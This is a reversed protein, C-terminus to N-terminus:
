RPQTAPSTAASIAPTSAVPKLERELFAIVRQPVVPDNFAGHGGGKVVYMEVKGGIKQIADRFQESQSLPVVRDRDGHVILVPPMAAHVRHVPSASKALAPDASPTKGLLRAVATDGNGPWNGTFDAPGFFDIVAQVKTTDDSHIDGALLSVLHGGASGGWAAFRTPDLNYKEANARLFRVADKMDDIQAPFKAVQSLRYDISVLAFGRSLLATGPPNDRNGELWGGGHVWIVVPFPGPGRPLYIDLKLDGTDRPAYVVDRLTIPSAPPRALDPQPQQAWVTGADLLLLLCLLAILRHPM